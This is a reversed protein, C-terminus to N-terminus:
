RRLTFFESAIKWGQKTKLLQLTKWGRSEGQGRTNIFVLTINALNGDVLIHVDIFRQTFPAGEFVGRRFVEYNATDALGAGSADDPVYSFPITKALLISEFMAQNKTSVADTYTALLKEILIRDNAGPAFGATSSPAPQPTASPAEAPERACAASVTMLTLLLLAKM